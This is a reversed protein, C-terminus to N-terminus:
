KIRDLKKQVKRLVYEQDDKDLKIFKQEKENNEISRNTERINAELSVIKNHFTKKKNQTKKFDIEIKKLVKKAENQENGPTNVLRYVVEKQTQIQLVKGSQDMENLTILDKNSLIERKYQKVADIYNDNAQILSNLDSEMKAYKKNEEKLELAVAKQYQEIAFNRVYNKTPYFVEEESDESIYKGQLKFSVVLVIHGDYEKIYSNIDMSDNAIQPIFKKGISVEANEVIVKEKPSDKLYKTWSKLVTNYEAQPIEVVFATTEKNYFTKEKLLVKIEEQASINGFFLTTIFIVIWNRM